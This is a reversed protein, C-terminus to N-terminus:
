PLGNNMDTYMQAVKPGLLAILAVAAAVILGLVVGLESVEAGDESTVFRCLSRMSSSTANFSTGPHYRIAGFLIPAMRVM